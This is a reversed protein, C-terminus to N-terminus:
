RLIIKETSALGPPYVSNISNFGIITYYDQIIYTNDYITKFPRNILKILDRTTYTSVLFFDIFIPM